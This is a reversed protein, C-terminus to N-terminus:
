TSGGRRERIDNVVNYFNQANAWFSANPFKEKLWAEIMDYDVVSSTAEWFCVLQGDLYDWQLGVFVRRGALEGVQWNYGPSTQTWEVDNMARLDYTWPSQKARFCWAAHREYETAEVLYHVASWRPDNDQAHLHEVSTAGVEAGFWTRLPECVESM